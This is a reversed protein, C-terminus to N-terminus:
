VPSYAKIQPDKLDRRVKALLVTLEDKSWGLVGMFLRTSASELMGERIQAQTWAGLLKEKRDSSWQNSPWRFRKEEVDVFGKEIMWRKYNVVNSWSRGVKNGAETVHAQWELLSTGTISGDDSTQLSMDQLELYGGPALADYARGIVAAPDYFCTALTRGHIYDFKM